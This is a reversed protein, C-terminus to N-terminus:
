TFEGPRGVYGVGRAAERRRRVLWHGPEDCRVARRSGDSAVDITPESHSRPSTAGGGSGVVKGAASAWPRGGRQAMGSLWLPTEGRHADLSVVRGVRLRKGAGGRGRLPTRPGVLLGKAAAGVREDRCTEVM